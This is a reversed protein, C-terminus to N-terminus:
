PPSGGIRAITPLDMDLQRMLLIEQLRLLQEREYWRYGNAGVRAPPLLGVDDYHRLARATVGSMRALETISWSM